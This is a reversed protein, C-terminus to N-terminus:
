AWLAHGMAANYRGGQVTNEELAATIEKLDGDTLVLKAAGLNEKVRSAKSSGPIPVVNNGLSAVWALSLQASTSNKKEAIATLADVIKQNHKAAEDQFKDLSKRFDGDPLDKPNLKGTLFGRGLPSYAIVTVGLEKATTIVKKTEDEYAWPSVEIEVATVKHIANAKRLTAASVESVGIHNFKGEEVLGKLSKMMSEIGVKEDVRACQFLDLKKKGDLAALVADVSRRINEPSGNPTLSEAETGGKVSLFTRDALEPYKTFFRSILHLNATRPSVGYFEGSNIFLKKDAPVLDIATKITEFAQEDPTPNPTWTMMMLGLGIKYIEVNSATGGLHTSENSSM